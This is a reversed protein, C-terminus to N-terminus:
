LFSLSVSSAAIVSPVFSPASMLVAVRPTLAVYPAKRVGPASQLTFSCRHSARFQDKERKARAGSWERRLLGPLRDSHDPEFRRENRTGAKHTAHRAAHTHREASPESCDPRWERERHLHQVVCKSAVVGLFVCGAHM